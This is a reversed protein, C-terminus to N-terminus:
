PLALKINLGPVPALQVKSITCLNTFLLPSTRSPRLGLWRLDPLPPLWPHRQVRFQPLSDLRQCHLQRTIQVTGLAVGGPSGLERVHFLLGSLNTVGQGTRHEGVVKAFLGLLFAM